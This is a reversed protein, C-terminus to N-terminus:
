FHMTTIKKMLAQIISSGLGKQSKLEEICLDSKLMPRLIM